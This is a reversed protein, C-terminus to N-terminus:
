AESEMLLKIFLDHLQKGAEEDKFQINLTDGFNFSVCLVSSVSILRRIQEIDVSM